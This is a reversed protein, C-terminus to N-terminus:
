TEGGVSQMRREEGGYRSCAGSIANNEIQDVSYNTLFSRMM